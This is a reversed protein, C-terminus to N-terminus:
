LYLPNRWEGVVIENYVLAGEMREHDHKKFEFGNSIFKNQEKFDYPHDFISKLVVSGDVDKFKGETKWMYRDKDWYLKYTESPIFDGLSWNESPLLTFRMPPPGTIELGILIIFLCLGFIVIIIGVIIRITMKAVDSVGDSSDM